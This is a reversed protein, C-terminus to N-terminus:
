WEKRRLISITGFSKVAQYQDAIYKDLIHVGSSVASDNPENIDNWTSELWIYLPKNKELDGVMELQVKESTQLGPDFHHWKTAPLRQTLFYASVDNQIIKDHRTLGVFIRQGPTTHMLLYQVAAERDDGLLFIRKNKYRGLADSVAVDNVPEDSNQIVSFVGIDDLVRIGGGREGMPGAIVASVVAFVALGNLFYKFLGIENKKVCGFIVALVMLAPIISLQMHVASVRVAGKLYFFAALSSFLVLFIIIEDRYVAGGEGEMSKIVSGSEARGDIVFVWFAMLCIMVPLYIVVDAIWVFFGRVSFLRELNPFPLGRMAAYNEVPYFVLDHLFDHLVGNLCYLFIVAGVTLGAGLVYPSLLWCVRGEVALRNKRGLVFLILIAATIQSLFALFGVDYRFLAVLGVLIGAVFPYTVSTVRSLAKTMLLTSGIALLLAPYVPYGYTGVFGLWVGCIATVIMAIWRKTYRITTIYILSVIGSRISLDFVREVSVNYGFVDFLWSLVYFQAPGYNAYFDRHIIEGAAVRMAGTLILGEDYVDVFRTMVLFMYLLSVFFILMMFFFSHPFFGASSNISSKKTNGKM